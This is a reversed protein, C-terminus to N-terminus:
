FDFYIFDDTKINRSYLILNITVIYFLWRVWVSKDKLYQFLQLKGLQFNFLDTLFVMLFLFITNFKGIGIDIYLHQWDFTMSILHFGDETTAARFFLVPFFFCSNIFILCLFNLARPYQNLGIREFFSKRSKLTAYEIVLFLGHLGGWLVYTWSAGHWLGTLTFTIFLSLYWFWKKRHFDTLPFFVYDRFWETLTIHWNQWFKIVSTFYIHNSFNKSLRIGLIRAIGISIDSYAAFDYFVQLFFLFTAIIIVPGQHQNSVEFVPDVYIAINDAVVLKRFFGWLILQLGQVIRTYDFSFNFHFQTLLNKAREIPGAVLQSFFCVYLAFKGFHSEPKLYGRYIDISYSLTQFTYFSIGLPLLFNHKPPLYNYGFYQFINTIETSFFNFYKFFFLLGLNSFLSIYLWNKKNKESSATYIKQGCIFDISTSILLLLVYFPNHYGYFFYSAILLWLWRWKIPLIFYFIVVLPLFLIFEFSVFLM